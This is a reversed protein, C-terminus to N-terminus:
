KGDTTIRASKKVPPRRPAMINHKFLLSLFLFFIFYNFLLRTEWYSEAGRVNKGDDRPSRKRVYSM